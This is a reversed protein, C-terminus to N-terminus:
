KLLAAAAAGYLNADEVQLFRWHRGFRGTCLDSMAREIYARYLRFKHFTSGEAIIAAPRQATRGMDGQLVVATLMVALREAAREALGALIAKLAAKDEDQACLRQPLAGGDLGDLWASVQSLSLGDLALVSRTCPPTFLGEKAAGKLTLEMLTGLYAGSTMKELPHRGPERSVADLARDFDGQPFRDYSGAELNIVMNDWASLKRKAIREGRESYCCNLGTGLIFGVFGDYASRDVALYGGLLTAVTDNVVAGTEPPTLGKNNMYAALDRYLHIGSGGEVRVEKDFYLVKGDLDPTIEAPFSFCLGMRCGAPFQALQQVITDWFGTRTVMGRSGPTPVVQQPSFQLSGSAWTGLAARFNTGGMDLAAVQGQAPLARGLSIYAPLMLLSGPEGRLGREMEARYGECAAALDIQGPAMGHRSLFHRAQRTEDM